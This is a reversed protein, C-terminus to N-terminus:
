NLQWWLAAPVRRIITELRVRWQESSCVRLYTRNQHALARSAKYRIYTPVRNDDGGSSGTNAFWIVAPTHSLSLAFKCYLKHACAAHSCSKWWQNRNAGTQNFQKQSFKYKQANRSPNLQPHILYTHIQQDTSFLHRIPKWPPNPLSERQAV